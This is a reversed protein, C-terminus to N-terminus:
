EVDEVKEPGGAKPVTKMTFRGWGASLSGSTRYSAESVSFGTVRVEKLFGTIAETIAKKGRIAPSGSM